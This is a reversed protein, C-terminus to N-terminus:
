GKSVAPGAHYQFHLRQWQEKAYVVNGSLQVQKGPPFPFGFSPLVLRVENGPSHGKHLIVSHCPHQEPWHSHQDCSSQLTASIWEGVTIARCFHRQVETGDELFSSTWRSM